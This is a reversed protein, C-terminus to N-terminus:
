HTNIDKQRRHMEDLDDECYLLLSRCQRVRLGLWSKGLACATALMQGLLTKGEGGAGYLSTVRAMPVWEAVLWQRQPVPLGELSTPDFPWLAASQLDHGNKLPARDKNGKAREAEEAEEVARRIFDDQEM